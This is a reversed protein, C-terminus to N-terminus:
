FLSIRAKFHMSVLSIIRNLGRFGLCFVDELRQPPIKNHNQWKNKHFKNTNRITKNIIKIIIIVM